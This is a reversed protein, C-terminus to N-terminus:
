ELDDNDIDDEIPASMLLNKKHWKLWEHFANMDLTALTNSSADLFTDHKRGEISSFPKLNILVNIIQQEDNKSSKHSHLSPKAKNGTKNDFNQIIERLGGIAKSLREIAKNTKNAGMGKIYNKLDRNINEQLLDAEINNGSGGKWNVTSASKCRHAESESLFVEIQVISVLMEIAYANFGSDSKFHQLLEKHLTAIREGDGERVADKIDIFLFYYRLLCISYEKVLDTQEDPILDDTNATPLLYEKVFKNLIKSFRTVKVVSWMM